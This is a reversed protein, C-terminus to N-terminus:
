KVKQLTIRPSTNDIFNWIEIESNKLQFYYTQWVLSSSAAWLIKISDSGIKFEYPGNPKKPRYVGDEELIYGRFLELWDDNAFKGFTVTDTRIDARVWEGRLEDILSEKKCSLVIGGLFLITLLIFKKM